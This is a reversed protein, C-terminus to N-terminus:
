KNDRQPQKGKLSSNERWLRGMGFSLGLITVANFLLSVLVAYEALVVILMLGAISASNLLTLGLGVSTATMGHREMPRKFLSIMGVISCIAAATDLLCAIAGAIFFLTEDEALLLMFIALGIAMSCLGALSGGVYAVIEPKRDTNSPTIAPLTASSKSPESHPRVPRTMWESTGTNYPEDSAFSEPPDLESLVQIVDERSVEGQVNRNLLENIQATVEEIIALRDSRSKGSRILLREIADLRDEILREVVPSREMTTM